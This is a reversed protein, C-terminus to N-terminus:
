VRGYLEITSIQRSVETPSSSFPVSLPNSSTDNMGISSLAIAFERSIVVQELIIQTSQLTGLKMYGDDLLEELQFPTARLKAFEWSEAPPAERLVSLVQDLATYTGQPNHAAEAIQVPVFTRVVGPIGCKAEAQPGILGRSRLTDTLFAFGNMIGAVGAASDANLKAVHVMDRTIDGRFNNNRTIRDAAQHITVAEGGFLLRLNELPKDKYLGFIGLEHQTEKAM